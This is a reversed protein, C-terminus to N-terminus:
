KEPQTMLQVWGKEEEQHCFRLMKIKQIVIFSGSSKGGKLDQGLIQIELELDQWLNSWLGEIEGRDQKGERWISIWGGILLNPSGHPSEQGATPASKPRGSRKGRPFCLFLFLDLQKEM